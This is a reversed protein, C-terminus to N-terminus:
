ELDVPALGRERVAEQVGEKIRLLVGAWRAAMEDGQWKGESEREVVWAVWKVVKVAKALDREEVVVAKLYAVLATVDEAFPEDGWFERVWDKIMDRLDPLESLNEKTFTPKARQPPLKFMREVADQHQQNAKVQKRARPRQHM